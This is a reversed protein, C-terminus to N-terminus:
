EEDPTKDPTPASSDSDSKAGPIVYDGKLWRGLDIQQCRKSCFPAFGPDALKSCEPCKAM